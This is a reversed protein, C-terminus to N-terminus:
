VRLVIGGRLVQKVDQKLARASNKKIHPVKSPCPPVRFIEEAFALGPPVTM